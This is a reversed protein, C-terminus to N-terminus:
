KDEKHEILPWYTKFDFQPSNDGDHCSFCNQKGSLPDAAEEKTIRVALQMKKQLKEDKGKEAVVHGQGPGHCDECGVNELHPTKEPSEYGGQYPFFRSPHWGVVHCSVCEPDYNRPPDLEALTAYAAAHASAELGQRVRRPM